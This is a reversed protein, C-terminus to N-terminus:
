KEKKELYESKLVMKATYVKTEEPFLSGIDESQGNSSTMLLEQFCTQTTKPMAKWKKENNGLLWTFTGSEVM